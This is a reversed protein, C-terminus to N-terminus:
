ARHRDAGLRRDLVDHGLSLGRLVAVPHEHRCIASRFRDRGRRVVSGGHMCVSGHPGAHIARAAWRDAPTHDPWSRSWVRRKPRRPLGRSNYSGACAVARVWQLGAGLASKVPMVAIGRPSSTQMPGIGFVALGERSDVFEYLEPMDVIWQPDASPISYEFPHVFELAVSIPSTASPEEFHISQVFQTAKPLWSAFDADDHAWIDILITRDGVQFVILTSAVSLSIYKSARTPGEDYHIDGACSDMGSPFSTTLAHRGDLIISTTPGPSSTSGLLDMFEAPTPDSLVRTTPCPHTWPSGLAIVGVGRLSEGQFKAFEGGALPATGYGFGQLDDEEMALHFVGSTEIPLQYTFPKVFNATLVPASLTWPTAAPLASQRLSPQPSQRSTPQPSQTPTSGPSQTPVPLVAPRSGVALGLAVGVLLTLVLAAVLRLQTGAQIGRITPGNTIGVHLTAWWGVRQRRTGLATMAHAHLGDPAKGAGRDSLWEHVTNEFRDSTMPCGGSAADDTTMPRPM